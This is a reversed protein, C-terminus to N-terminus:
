LDALLIRRRRAGDVLAHLRHHTRQSRPLREIRLALTRSVRAALFHLLDARRGAQRPSGPGDIERVTAPTEYEALDAAVDWVFESQGGSRGGYGRNRFFPESLTDPPLGPTFTRIGAGLSAETCGHTSWGLRQRSRSSRATDEAGSVRSPVAIADVWGHTPPSTLRTAPSTAPSSSALRTHRRRRRRLSRGPTPRAACRSQISRLPALDHLLKWLSQDLDRGGKPPPSFGHPDIPVLM